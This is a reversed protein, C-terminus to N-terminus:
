KMWRGYCVCINSHLTTRLHMPVCHSPTSSSWYNSEVNLESAVPSLVWTFLLKVYNRDKNPPDQLASFSFFYSYLTVKLLLTFPSSPGGINSSFIWFFICAVAVYLISSRIGQLQLLFQAIPRLLQKHEWYNTEINLGSTVLSLVWTFM